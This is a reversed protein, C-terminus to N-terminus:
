LIILLYTLLGKIEQCFLTMLSRMFHCVFVIAVICYFLHFRKHTVTTELVSNGLFSFFLKNFHFFVPFFSYCCCLCNIHEMLFVDYFFHINTSTIIATPLAFTYHFTRLKMPISKSPSYSTFM